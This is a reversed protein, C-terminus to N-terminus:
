NSENINDIKEFGLIKGDQYTVFGVDGVKALSSGKGAEIKLKLQHHDKDLLYFTYIMDDVMTHALDGAQMANTKGSFPSSTYKRAVANINKDQREKAAVQVKVKRLPHLISKLSKKILWFLLILVILSLMFCFFGAEAQSFFEKLM